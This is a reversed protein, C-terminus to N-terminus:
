GQGCLGSALTISVSSMLRSRSAACLMAERGEIAEGYGGPGTVVNRTSPGPVTVTLAVPTINSDLSFTSTRPACGLASGVVSHVVHPATTTRTGPFYSAPGLPGTYMRM